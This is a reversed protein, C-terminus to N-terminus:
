VSLAVHMMHCAATCCEATKMNNIYDCYLIGSCNPLPISDCPKGVCTPLLCPLMSCENCLIVFDMFTLTHCEVHHMNSGWHLEVKLPEVTWYKISYLETIWFFKLVMSRYWSLKRTFVAFTWFQRSTNNLAM